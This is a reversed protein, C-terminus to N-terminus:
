TSSAGDVASLAVPSSHLLPGPARIFKASIEKVINSNKKFIYYLPQAISNAAYIIGINYEPNIVGVSPRKRYSNKNKLMLKLKSAM